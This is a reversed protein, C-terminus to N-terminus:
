LVMNKKVEDPSEVIETSDEVAELVGLLKDERDKVPAVIVRLMRGGQKTWFERHDAEGRKFLNVNLMVHNELKLPHCFPIRSGTITKARAFGKVLRSESYLKVGDDTNAFTVKLPLSRSIGEVEELTSFSRYVDKFKESLERPDVGRHIELLLKKILM